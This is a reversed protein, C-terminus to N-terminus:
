CSLNGLLLKRHHMSPLTPQQTGQFRFQGNVLHSAAFGLGPVAAELTKGNTSGAHKNVISPTAYCRGDEHYVLYCDPCMGLCKEFFFHIEAEINKDLKLTQETFIHESLKREVRVRLRKSLRWTREDYELFKGAVAGLVPFNKPIEFFPPDLTVSVYGSTFPTWLWLNSQLWGTM